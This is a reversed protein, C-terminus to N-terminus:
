EGMAVVRRELLNEMQYRQLVLSDATLECEVYFGERAAGCVFTPIFNEGVKGEGIEEGDWPLYWENVNHAHGSFIAAVNYPKLAEWYAERQEPTWWRKEPKFENDVFGISFFDFGYHHILFVPRGSSGVHEELDQILFDLSNFPNQAKKNNIPENGPFVNLHVFHYDEWDWSYHINPYSSNVEPIRRRTRVDDWILFCDDEWSAVQVPIISDLGFANWEGWNPACFPTALYDHNGLGDFVYESFCDISNLYKEFEGRASNWTLDGAILYGKYGEEYIKQCANESIWDARQMAISNNKIELSDYQPDGTVIFRLGPEPM